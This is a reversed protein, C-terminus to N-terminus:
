PTACDEASDITNRTEASISVVMGCEFHADRVFGYLANATGDWYPPRSAFTVIVNSSTPSFMWSTTSAEAGSGSLTASGTGTCDGTDRFIVVVTGDQNVSRLMAVFHPVPDAGVDVAWADSGIESLNIGVASRDETGIDDATTSTAGSSSPFESRSIALIKGKYTGGITFNEDARFVQDTVTVLAQGDDRRKEGAVDRIMANVTDIIENLGAPKVLGAKGGPYNRITKPTAM